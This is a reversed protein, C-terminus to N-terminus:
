RSIFVPIFVHIFYYNYPQNDLDIPPPRKSHAFAMDMLPVAMAEASLVSGKVAAV